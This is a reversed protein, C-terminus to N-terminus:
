QCKAKGLDVWDGTQVLKKIDIVSVLVGKGKFGHDYLVQCVYEAYGDRKTGDDFVGVKFIFPATWTADKVKPEEDSIFIQKVKNRALELSDAQVPLAFLSLALLTLAKKM